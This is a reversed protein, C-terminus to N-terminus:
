IKMTSCKKTTSSITILYRFIKPKEQM